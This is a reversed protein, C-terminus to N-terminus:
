VVRKDHDIHITGVMELKLVATTTLARIKLTVLLKKAFSPIRGRKIARACRERKVYEVSIV